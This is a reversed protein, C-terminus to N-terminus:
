LPKTLNSQDLPEGAFAYEGAELRALMEHAWVAEGGMRADVLRLVEAVHRPKRPNSLLDGVSFGLGRHAAEIQAVRHELAARVEERSLAWMFSVGAMLRSPDDPHLQWLADRLLMLFETEGDDTLRYLTRAPRGDSAETGTEELFDDRALTRLANYVSGPNLPAWEDARWTMLERRVFYGHVPQFIRVAGLMLLRTTSL